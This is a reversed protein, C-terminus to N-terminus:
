LCEMEHLGGKDEDDAEEEFYNWYDHTWDFETITGLAEVISFEPHDPDDYDIELIISTLCLPAEQLQV